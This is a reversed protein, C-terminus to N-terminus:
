WLGMGGMANAAGVCAPPPHKGFDSRWAEVINGCTAYCVVHARRRCDNREAGHLSNCSSQDYDILCRRTCQNWPKENFSECCKKAKCAYEDKDCDGSKKCQDAYYECISKDRPKLKPKPYPGSNALGKPDIGTLPNNEVYAYTNIGGDLGSPDSQLYRGFSSDFDRYYNYSTGTEQDYYQGPFRLNYAFAGLGAPDENPLNNGFSDDNPWEWRSRNATDTIQRPTGLNDTWVYFVDFSAANPKLVAVPLDGLWVTEQIAAGTADYEGLLHGAEDYVFFVDTGGNKKVRQGLGNIAYTATGAQKMRGRGDYTYTIGASSALNGANDYTFSRTVAGSLSALRHSTSPYTYTTSAANITANTRNGNADYAFSQTQGAALNATVLRNLSDYSFAESLDAYLGASPGLTITKVRGDLDFTRSFPEGNGWTWASAGGFPFYRASVLVSVGDVSVSAIHGVADFGYAVARGSPYTIGTQRGSAYGYSVTFTKNAPNATVTQAKSTVRGLADYAYATYGSPDTVKTLRGKAYPGGTTTNDYEYTVTGDAVTAATVRNLSDYAYTTATGRADTQTAVNGAADYTFSTTGTDPSIQSALDGLGDYNYTTAASLRPDKVTKLRDKADYTFVTNGNAPDNINTLRNLLDYTNTTVHNLPDTVHWVNNNSDYDYQTTQASAGLERNLRNIGDYVRQQLKNLSQQPDYVREAVRNGRLDLQYDIANGLSDDVGIMRSADDYAYMIWSGDPMTVRTLNGVADYDYTTAEGATSRSALWGRPKYSLTTAVGNSDTIRTPRGDADYSDFSTVQSAANAVTHVQGRCGLCADDDAYYTITTIDATDTRSGDITLVQGHANYTYNWERVSGGATLNKKTLNGAADYTFTTVLNVGSVGSPETITAPLRYTPHWTTTITRALSTGSVETRSTELNRVADYVYTTTAGKSDRRTLPNGNADFTASESGDVGLSNWFSKRKLTGGIKAYSYNYSTNFADKVTTTITAADIYSYGFTYKDAQGAHETSSALGTGSDYSYTALRIGREDVIGTLLYPHSADEYVYTRVSNDPYTVSIPNGKADYAYQYVRSAPDTMTSLNGSADYTFTMTRGYTDTASGLQGAANYALSTTFGARTVISTLRGEADFSEADMDATMVRWGTVTGSGDTLKQLRFAAGDNNQVEVGSLNFMRVTGDAEQMAAMLYANSSPYPIVRASYTSRWKDAATEQRSVVDFFGASNFYREFALGGPAPSRYDTERQIKARTGVDVPNGACEKCPPFKVCPTDTDGGAMSYGDPCGARRGYSFIVNETWQNCNNFSDLQGGSFPLIQYDSILVGFSYLTNCNCNYNSCSPVPTPGACTSDGHILHEFTAALGSANGPNPAITAGVCGNEGWTGGYTTCWAVQRYVYAGTDDCLQYSWDSIPIASTCTSSGGNNTCNAAVVGQFIGTTAILLAVLRIIKKAITKM